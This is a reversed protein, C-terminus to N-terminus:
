GGGGILCLFGIGLYFMFLPFIALGVRNKVVGSGGLISAGAALSWAVLLLDIPLRILVSLRVAHPLASLM